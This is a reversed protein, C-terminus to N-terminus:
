PKNDTVTQGAHVVQTDINKTNYVPQKKKKLFNQRLYFFNLSGQSIVHQEGAEELFWTSLTPLFVVPDM